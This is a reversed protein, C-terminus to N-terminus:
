KFPPRILHSSARARTLFSCSLRAASRARVVSASARSAMLLDRSLYFLMCILSSVTGISCTSASASTTGIKSLSLGPPPRGESAAWVALSKAPPQISSNYRLPSNEPLSNSIAMNYRGGPIFARRRNTTPAPLLSRNVGATSRLTAPAATRKRFGFDEGVM